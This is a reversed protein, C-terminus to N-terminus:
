KKSRILALTKPDVESDELISYCRRCRITGDLLRVLVDKIRGEYYKCKHIKQEVM